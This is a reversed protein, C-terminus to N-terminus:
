RGEIEEIPPYEDESTETIRPNKFIGYVTQIQTKLAEDEASWSPKNLFLFSYGNNGRTTAIGVVRKNEIDLGRAVFCMKTLMDVIRQGNHHDDNSILFCYTTDLHTTKRRIMDLESGMFETYADMFDKALIRRALRDPRALERAAIEYKPSGEHARDIISDWGYSVADLEKKKIYQPMSEIKEWIGDHVVAHNVGRLWEFGRGLEIYKGLLNEEGGEVAIRTCNLIEEKARLYHCFDSITDLERMAIDAFEKTFVHVTHGKIEPTLSMPETSRGMLVSILHVHKISSPDFLEPGRRPNSLTISNQIDFLARRAGGVQKLNKEVEATKYRGQSDVKLDKIQWIIVTDDFVVLLDCLEKGDPRKPNPYCWDTFFTDTALSHIIGEALAGKQQFYDGSKV